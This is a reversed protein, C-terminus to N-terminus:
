QFSFPQFDSPIMEKMHEEDYGYKQRLKEIYTTGQKTIAQEILKHKIKDAAQEFPLPEKKNAKKLFFIRHVISNDSKSLQAAPKSFTQPLLTPIIAKHQDSITRENAEFDQSVTVTVDVETPTEKKLTEALNDLSAQHSHLLDYAKKAITESLEKEPSRISVVQYEWEQVPPNKVLYDKYIAKIEIPNIKQLVKANVRFWHMREVIMESHVFEKAEEYSIGIEDLSAMINPGFRQLMEERVEADNVKVELKEADAIMLETDIMDILTEKWQTTYYQFRASKSDALDPYRRSMDLDMKKMVDLVSISRDNIKALIRNNIVLNQGKNPPILPVDALLPSLAVVALLFFRKM